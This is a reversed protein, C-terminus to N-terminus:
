SSSAPATTGGQAPTAAGTPTPDAPPGFGPQYDIGAEDRAAKMRRELETAVARQQFANTALPRAADGTVAAPQTGLVYSVTVMSPSPVVFPESNGVRSIQNFMGVPLTATDVRVNGREFRIGLRNLTAVVENMSKAEALRELYEGRAPPAFRIQDLALITREAFMQPNDAIFRDIEAASPEKLDRGTQQSLLQVLLAEEMQRRRVIFEPTADIGQEKAIEGLLRRNIVNALAANRIADRNAGEAVEAGGMETNLEQLTIEEGNVVAVVQGEPEKDCGALLATALLVPLVAWRRFPRGGSGLTVTTM